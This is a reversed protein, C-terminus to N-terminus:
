EPVRMFYRTIYLSESRAIKRAFTSGDESVTLTDRLSGWGSPFETYMELEKASNKTLRWRAEGSMKSMPPVAKSAWSGDLPISEEVSIGMQLLILVHTDSTKMTLFSTKADMAKRIFYHVGMDSMIPEYVESRAKDLKWKGMWLPRAGDGGLPRPVSSLAAAPGVASSPPASTAPTRTSPTAAGISAQAQKSAGSAIERASFTVRKANASGAGDSPAVHMLILALVVFFTCASSGGAALCALALGLCSTAGGPLLASLLGSGSKGSAKAACPETNHVRVCLRLGAPESAFTQLNFSTDSVATNFLPLRVMANGSGTSSEFLVLTVESANSPLLVTCPERWSLQRPAEEPALLLLRPEEVNSSGSRSRAFRLSGTSTVCGGEEAQLAAAAAGITELWRHQEAQTACSLLEGGVSICFPRGPEGEAVASGQLPISGRRIEQSQDEEMVAPPEMFYDISKKRVVCFRYNWEKRWRGRKELMGALLV